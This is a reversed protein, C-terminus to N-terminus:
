VFSFGLISAIGGSIYCIIVFWFAFKACLRKGETINIDRGILFFLIELPLFFLLLGVANGVWSQIMINSNDLMKVLFINGLFM